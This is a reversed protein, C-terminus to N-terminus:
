TAGGPKAAGFDTIRDPQLVVAKLASLFRDEERNPFLHSVAHTGPDALDFDLKIVGIVFDAASMIAAREM